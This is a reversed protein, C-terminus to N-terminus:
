VGIKRAFQYTIKLEGIGSIVHLYNRGKVFRLWNKNFNTLRLLGTSSVITQLLNNVTITEGPLVSSFLFERNSDNANSISMSNGISNLTFEVEPFLYSQDASSNYFDFYFNKIENGAFNYTLTQPFTYFWPSNSIGKLTVGQQVNGVYYNTASTFITDLYCDAIDDEVIQLKLYSGRGLLWGEIVSRDVGTLPNFSGVTLEFELGKNFYNGFHYSKSKRFIRKELIEVDSGANGESTGSSKFDLIRLGYNESPIGDFIFSQGWFAM